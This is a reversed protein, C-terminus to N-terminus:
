GAKCDASPWVTAVGIAVKGRRVSFYIARSGETIGYEDLSPAIAFTARAPPQDKGSSTESTEQQNLLSQTSANPSSAAALLVVSQGSRLGNARM